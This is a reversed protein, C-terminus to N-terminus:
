GQPVPTTTVASKRGSSTTSISTSATMPLAVGTSLQSTILVNLMVEDTTVSRLHNPFTAVVAGRHQRYEWRDITDGVWGARLLSAKPSGRSMTTRM